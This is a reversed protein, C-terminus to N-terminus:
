AIINMFGGQHDGKAGWFEELTSDTDLARRPMCLLDTQEARGLLLLKMFITTLPPVPNM